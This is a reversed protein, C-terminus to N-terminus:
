VIIAIYIDDMRKEAKRLREASPCLGRPRTM